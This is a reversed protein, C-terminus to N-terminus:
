FCFVTDKLNKKTRQTLEKSINELIDTKERIIGLRSNIGGISNKKIKMVINDRFNVVLM